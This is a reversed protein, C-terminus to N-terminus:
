LPEMKQHNDSEKCFCLFVNRPHDDVAERCTIKLIQRIVLGDPASM